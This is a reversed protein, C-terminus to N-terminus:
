ASSMDKYLKQYRGVVADLAFHTEVRERAALANRKVEEAPRSLLDTWAKSLAEPDRMPVVCGTEGIIYVSDGVDTVVCPVGCAMAEGIVNPFGEGYLSCLTNLSLAAAIQPIDRRQGLLHFRDCLNAQRIAGALVENQWTVDEGCCLFHVDPRRSHLLAAAQVFTAHDKMPHFRGILGILSADAAIGLEGRIASRAAESPHYASLDFGNPIVLLKNAAYGLRVHEERGAESCCVIRQPLSHSLRACARGILITQRKITAPDLNSHRINWALPIHGALRTAIGGLLDAHHLWTQVVQPHSQRLWWALRLALVPNPLGPRMNLARVPIGAEIMKEGMPGISSLSIVEPAFASRDMRSVLKFLMNEAGGVSLGTIIHVVKIM